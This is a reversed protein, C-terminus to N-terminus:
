NGILMERPIKGLVSSVYTVEENTMWPGMPLSLVEQALQQANGFVNQISEESVLSVMPEVDFIAYPYHIDTSIGNEAFYAKLGERDQARLVFHHWVSEKPSHSGIIAHHAKEGLAAQYEAAIERRRATWENLKTLHISLFAAQIPDLRSNWGTDVHEYKTSGQGYSRRSVIRAAIAPDHTVIGGGDGLAGLNKTPYFSFAAADGATGTMGATSHAGHSQAADEFLLLGHRDAIIRLAAMDAAQGYLHVAFIAKTRPTIAAEVLSPDICATHPLVDVPVVKAGTQSIGLWTAYYTFAPAIVEDGIGINYAELILRIADLGNAVGVCYQAGLYLAFDKEFKEVFPGGVFYGASIVEDLAAHLQPAESSTVRSLDFFPVKNMTAGM